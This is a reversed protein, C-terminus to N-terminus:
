LIYEDDSPLYLVYITLYTKIKKEKKTCIKLNVPAYIYLRM